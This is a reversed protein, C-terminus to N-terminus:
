IEKGNVIFKKCKAEIDKSSEMIIGNNSSIHMDNCQMDLKGKCEMTTNNSNISVNDKCEVSFSKGETTINDAKTNITTTDIGVNNSDITFSNCKTTINNCQMDTNNCEIDIDGSCKIGINDCEINMDGDYKININNCQINIDSCEINVDKKCVISINGDKDLKIQTGDRTYLAVEGKEVKPRKSDYVGVISEHKGTKLIHAKMGKFGFSALGYPMMIMTERCETDATSQINAKNGGTLISSITGFVSSTQINKRGSSMRNMGRFYNNNRSGM